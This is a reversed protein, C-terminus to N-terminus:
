VYSLCFQECVGTQKLIYSSSYTKQKLVRSKQPSIHIHKVATAFICPKVIKDKYNKQTNCFFRLKFHLAVSLHQCTSLMNSFCSFHLVKLCIMNKNKTHDVGSAM